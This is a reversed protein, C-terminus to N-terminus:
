QGKELGDRVGDIEGSAEEPLYPAPPRVSALTSPTVLLDVWGNVSAQKDPHIVRLVKVRWQKTEIYQGVKVWQHRSDPNSMPSLVAGGEQTNVSIRFLVRDPENTAPNGQQAKVARLQLMGGESYRWIFQIDDAGSLPAHFVGVSDVPPKSLPHVAVRTLTRLKGNWRYIQGGLPMLHGDPILVTYSAIAGAPLVLQHTSRHEYTVSLLLSLDNIDRPRDRQALYQAPYDDFHYVRYNGPKSIAIEFLDPPCTSALRPVCFIGGSRWKGTVFSTRYPNHRRSEAQM